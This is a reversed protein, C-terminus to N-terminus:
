CLEEASEESSSYEEVNYPKKTLKIRHCCRYVERLNSNFIRGNELQTTFIFQTGSPINIIVDDFKLLNIHGCILKVVFTSSINNFDINEFLIGSYRSQDYDRLDYIDEVILCQYGLHFKALETKGIGSPGFIIIHIDDSIRRSISSRINSRHIMTRNSISKESSRDDKILPPRVYKNVNMVGIGPIVRRKKIRKEDNSQSPEQNVVDISHMNNPQYEM